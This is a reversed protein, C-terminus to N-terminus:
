LRSLLKEKYKDIKRLTKAYIGFSNKVERAKEELLNVDEEGLTIKNAARSTKIQSVRDTQKHFRAMFKYAYDIDKEYDNICTKIEKYLKVKQKGSLNTTNKWLLTQMKSSHKGWREASQQNAFTRTKNFLQALELNDFKHVTLNSSQRPGTVNMLPTEPNEKFKARFKEPYPKKEIIEDADM